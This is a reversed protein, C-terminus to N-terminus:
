AVRASGHVVHVCARPAPDVDGGIRHAAGTAGPELVSKKWTDTGLVTWFASYREVADIRTSPGVRRFSGVWSSVSVGRIDPRFVYKRTRQHIDWVGYAAIKSFWTAASAAAFTRLARM